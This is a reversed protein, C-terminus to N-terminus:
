ETEIWAGVYSAVNSTREVWWGFFTEIWAGVYSAVVNKQQEQHNLATEIWAGVYSAVIRRKFTTNRSSLKLGRVWM